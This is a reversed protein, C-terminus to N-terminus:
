FSGFEYPVVECQGTIAFTDISIFSFALLAVAVVFFREPKGPILEICSPILLISFYIFYVSLRGITISYLSIGNVIVGFLVLLVLMEIRRIGLQDRSCRDRSRFVCCLVFLATFAFLFEILSRSGRGQIAGAGGSLYTDFHVFYQTVFSLLFPMLCVVIVAFGLFLSIKVATSVRTPKAIWYVALLMLGSLVTTHFLVAVLLWIFYTKLSGKDLGWYALLLFSMAISQRILNFSLPYFYLAFLAVVLALHGRAIKRGVVIVPTAICLEVVFLFSQFTGIVNASIWTVVKYLFGFGSYVTPGIFTLFDYRSAGYYVPYAYYTTDTGVSMDRAAAFFCFVLVAAGLLVWALKQSRVKDSTWALLTTIGAICFYITM